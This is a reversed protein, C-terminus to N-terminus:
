RAGRPAGLVQVWYIDGSGEDSVVYAVGMDTFRPNMLNACHSPSGLWGEVVQEETTAGAALNEAVSSWAYGQRGIREAPRSGDTGRHTLEGITALERAHTDAARDLAPLRNLPAASGFRTGGCNRGRARAKNVLELLREHVVSAREPGPLAFPAAVVVWADHGDSAVGIEQFEASTLQACFRVALASRIAVLGRDDAADRAQIRISAAAAAGYPARQLSETLSQGHLLQSAVVALRPQPRLLTDLGRFQMCGASRIANAAAIIVDPPAACAACACLALQVALLAAIARRLRVRVRCTRVNRPAPM